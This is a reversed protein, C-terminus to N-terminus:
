TKMLRQVKVIKLGSNLVHKIKFIKYIFTILSMIKSGYLFTGYQFFDKTYSYLIYKRFKIPLMKSFKNFFHKISGFREGFAEQKLIM